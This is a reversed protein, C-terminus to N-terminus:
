TTGTAPLDELLSSRLAAVRDSTMGNALVYGEVSGHETILNEIVARMAVADVAWRQKAVEAVAGEQTAARAQHRELLIPMRDHTLAYDAAIVDPDVGLLSLVLMAVLGTRDKGAACHFVLPQMDDAAILDLVAIFRDGFANLMMLYVDALPVVEGNAWAKADRGEYERRTEDVIPVHLVRVPLQELTGLPGHTFKEVEPNARLDIVTRLGLVETVHEVDADSMYSLSDSRFVRGTRVLKGHHTEYGGIDRFNAPGDLPILRDAV